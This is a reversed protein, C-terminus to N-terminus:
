RARLPGTEFRIGAAALEADLWGDSAFLAVETKGGRLRIGIPLFAVHGVAAGDWGDKSTRAAGHLEAMGLSAHRLLAISVSPRRDLAVSTVLPGNGLLLRSLFAVPTHGLIAKRVARTDVVRAEELRADLADLTVAEALDRGSLTADVLLGSLDVKADGDPPLPVVLSGPVELHIRPADPDGIGSQGFSAVLRPAGEYVFGGGQVRAHEMKLEARTGSGLRGADLVADVLLHGTGRAALGEAYLALLAPSFDKAELHLTASIPRLVQMGDYAQVDFSAISGGLQLRLDESVAHPGARLEGGELVLEAPGVRLRRMPSLEFRGTARGSGEWRFELMWLERVQAIVDDLRVTWLADIEAQTAPRPPPVEFLAPRAYGPIPPYAALRAEIGDASDVRQVFWFSVGDCRVHDGQFKRGLLALLSVDVRVSAITLLLQVNQDQMRLTFDELHVRGPLITYARGHTVRMAEPDWSIARRVMGTSLVLNGALVYLLELAILAIAGFRAVKLLTRGLAQSM